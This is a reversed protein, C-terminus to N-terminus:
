FFKVCWEADPLKSDRNKTSCSGVSSTVVVSLFHLGSFVRHTSSFDRSSRHQTTTSDQSCIFCILHMELFCSSSTNLWLKGFLPSAQHSLCGGSVHNTARTRWAALPSEMDIVCACCFGSVLDTPHQVCMERKRQQMHIM